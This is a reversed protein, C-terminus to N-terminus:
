VIRGMMSGFPLSIMIMRTASLTKPWLGQAPPTGRTTLHKQAVRGRLFAQLLLSYPSRHCWWVIPPPLARPAGKNTGSQKCRRAAELRVLFSVHRGRWGDSTCVSESLSGGFGLGYEQCVAILVRCSQFALTALVMEEIQTECASGPQYGPSSDNQRNM